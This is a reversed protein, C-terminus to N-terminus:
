KCDVIEYKWGNNSFPHKEIYSLPIRQTKKRLSLGSFKIVINTNTISLITKYTTTSEPMGINYEKLMKM